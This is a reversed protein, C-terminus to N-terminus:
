YSAKYSCGHLSSTSLNMILRGSQPAMLHTTHEESNLKMPLNPQTTMKTVYSIKTCFSLSAEDSFAKVQDNMLKDVKSKM